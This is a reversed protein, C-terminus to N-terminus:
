RQPQRFLKQFFHKNWLFGQYRLLICVTIKFLSFLIALNICYIVPADIYAPVKSLLEPQDAAPIPYTMTVFVAPQDNDVATKNFIGPIKRLVKLIKCTLFSGNHIVQYDSVRMKVMVSCYLLYAIIGIESIPDSDTIKYIQEGIFKTVSM